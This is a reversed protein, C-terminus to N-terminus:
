QLGVRSTTAWYQLVITGATGHKSMRTTSTCEVSSGIRVLQARIVSIAIFKGRVTRCKERKEEAVKRIDGGGGLDFVVKEIIIISVVHTCNMSDIRYYVDEESSREFAM